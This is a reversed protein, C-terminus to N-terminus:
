SDDPLVANSPTRRDTIQMGFLSGVLEVAVRATRGREDLFPNLEVIDVSRVLGCDHLLEMVLHAERYTAGGPVTTGVGPAVAPDLFDVDFSVHLVGNHAKVKEIVRRILVGVGFEDIARMDAVAIPREGVLKKELPDISRIGFLDLRDPGISVRPQDGLLRDLGPEGCLFAASMGHMNGTETTDPTNYDAHADLWLVFLPRNLEQWYRAVGNVSGMSLSHDGGMFIPVVGSRALLFARESLARIWAKIDDYFKANAPAPGDSPAVATMKLDGHDEVAFGLQDLVRGIGATRLADPGMLTGRQSAGIEIPVGLLAIRPKNPESM